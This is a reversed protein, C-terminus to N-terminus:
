AFGPREQLAESDRLQRQEARERAIFPSRVAVDIQEYLEIPRDPQELEDAQLPFQTGADSALDLEHRRGSQFRLEAVPDQGLGHNGPSHRNRIPSM